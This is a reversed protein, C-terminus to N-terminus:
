KISGCFDEVLKWDWEEPDGMFMILAIGGKGKFVGTAQRMTTRSAADSESVTLTASQGKITVEHTGVQRYTGQRATSQQFSQEMQRELEERSAYPTNVQMLMITPGYPDARALAVIKEFFMDMGMVQKYGEPLTYDAIQKGVDNAKNPDTSVVNQALRPLLLVLLICALGCFALISVTIGLIIKTTRSM